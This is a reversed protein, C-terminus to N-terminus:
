DGGYRERMQRRIEGLAHRILRDLIELEEDTPKRALEVHVNPEAGDPALKLELRAILGDPLEPDVLARLAETLATEMSDQDCGCSGRDEFARLHNRACIADPDSADLVELASRLEVVAEEGRDVHQLFIGLAARARARADVVSGAASFSRRLLAEAEDSRKLEALHLGQNRLIQSCLKPDNTQEALGFAHRYADQAADHDGADALALSVGQWGRIAEELKGECEWAEALSRLTQAQGRFDGLARERHSLGILLQVVAADGSGLRKIFLPLLRLVLGRGVKPRASQLRGLVYGALDVVLADPLKPLIESVPGPARMIQAIHESLALASALREHGNAWFNAVCQETVELAKELNRKKLLVEAFPELGFGYGAHEEGYFAKRCEVSELLVAESEELRELQLLLTGLNVLYTLRDRTGQSNGPLKISAAIRFPGVAASLQGAALLVRGLDNQATAYAACKTGAEQTVRRVEAVALAEADATAGRKLLPAAREM